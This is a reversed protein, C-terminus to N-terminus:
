EQAMIIRRLESVLHLNFATRITHTARSVIPHPLLTSGLGGAVGEVFSRVIGLTIGIYGDINGGAWRGGGTDGTGRGIPSTIPDAHLDVAVAAILVRERITTVADM